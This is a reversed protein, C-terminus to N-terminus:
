VEQIFNMVDIQTLHEGKALSTKIFLKITRVITSARRDNMTNLFDQYTPCEKANNISAKDIKIEIKDSAESLEGVDPTMEKDDTTISNFFGFVRNGIGFPDPIRKLSSSNRSQEFSEKGTTGSEDM